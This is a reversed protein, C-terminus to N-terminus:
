RKLPAATRQHFMHNHLWNLQQGKMVHCHWVALDTVELNSLTHNSDPPVTQMECM